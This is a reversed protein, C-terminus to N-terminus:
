SAPGSRKIAAVVGGLVDDRKVVALERDRDASMVNVIGLRRHHCSTLPEHLDREISNIPWTWVAKRSARLVGRGRSSRLWFACGTFWSSPLDPLRYFQSNCTLPKSNAELWVRPDLGCRRRRGDSVVAAVNGSPAEGVIVYTM